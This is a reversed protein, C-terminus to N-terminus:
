GLRQPFETLKGREFLQRLNRLRQRETDSFGALLHEVSYGAPATTGAADEPAAASIEKTHSPENM